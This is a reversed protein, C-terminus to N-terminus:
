ACLCFIKVSKLRSQIVRFLFKNIKGLSHLKKCKSWIVKYYPCLNKNMFLKNQDPLDVDEMKIKRLDMKAALVQQCDKRWSFTVIVTSIKKSIRHCAEIRNSAPASAPPQWQQWHLVGFHRLNLELTSIENKLINNVLNESRVPLLQPRCQLSVSVDTLPCLKEQRWTKLM